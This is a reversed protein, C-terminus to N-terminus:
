RLATRVAVEATERFSRITAFPKGSDRSISREIQSLGFFGEEAGVVMRVNEKALRWGWKGIERRTDMGYPEPGPHPFEESECGLWFLICGPGYNVGALDLHYEEWNLQREFHNDPGKIFYPALPHKEDWRCPCFIICDPVLKELEECMYRQWDGGGRIPGALFFRPSLKDDRGALGNFPLAIRPILIRM